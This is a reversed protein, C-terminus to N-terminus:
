PLMSHSGFPFETLLFRRVQLWNAANHSARVKVAEYFTSFGGRVDYRRFGTDLFILHNCFCHVGAKAPTVSPKQADMEARGSDFGMGVCCTTIFDGQCV